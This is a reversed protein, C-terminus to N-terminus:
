LRVRRYTIPSAGGREEAVVAALYVKRLRILDGIPTRTISRGEITYADSDKTARGELTADIADLIRRATSRTDDSTTAPDPLVEVRGRELTARFDSAADVVVLAWRYVGPALGATESAPVEISGEGGFRRGNFTAPAGGQEPVLVLDVSAAPPASSPWPALIRWSDGAILKAPVGRTAM